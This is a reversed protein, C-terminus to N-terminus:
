CKAPGNTLGVFDNVKGNHDMNWSFKLLGSHHLLHVTGKLDQPPIFCGTLERVHEQLGEMLDPREVHRRLGQMDGALRQIILTSLAGTYAEHTITSADGGTVYANIIGSAKSQSATLFEELRLDRLREPHTNFATFPNENKGLKKLAKEEIQRIRERTLNFVLGVEDLTLPFEDLGYRLRLVDRERESIEKFGPNEVAVLLKDLAEKTLIGEAQESPDADPDAIVLAEEAPLLNEYYMNEVIGYLEVIEKPDMGSYQALLDPRFDVLVAEGLEKAIKAEAKELKALKEYSTTSLRILGSVRAENRIDTAMTASIRASLTSKQSNDHHELVGYLVTIAHQFRDEVTFEETGIGDNGPSSKATGYARLLSRLVLEQVAEKDGEAIRQGYREWEANSISRGKLASTNLMAGLEEAEVERRLPEKPKAIDLNARSQGQVRAAELADLAEQQYPELPRALDANEPTWLGPNPTHMFSIKANKNRNTFLIKLPQHQM